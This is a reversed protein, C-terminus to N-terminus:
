NTREVLYRAVAKLNDARQGYPALEAFALDILQAADARSREMGHVAPWTTKESALDKGPTKGLQSSDQTMDLIDDVIQFALGAHRGFLELRRIDDAGGGAYIGGTVWSATKFKHKELALAILFCNTGIKHGPEQLAVAHCGAARDPPCANICEVRPHRVTPGFTSYEQGTVRSMQRGRKGTLAHIAADAVSEIESPLQRRYQAPCGSGTQQLAILLLALGLM